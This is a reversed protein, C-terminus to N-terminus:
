ALFSYVYVDTFKVLIRSRSTRPQTDHNFDTTSYRPLLGHNLITSVFPYNRLFWPIEGTVLDMYKKAPTGDEKPFILSSTVTPIPFLPLLISLSPLAGVFVDSITLNKITGILEHKCFFNGVCHSKVSWGVYIM